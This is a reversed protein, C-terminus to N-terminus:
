RAAALVISLRNALASHGESDTLALAESNRARDQLVCRPQQKILRNGRAVGRAFSQPPLREVTNRVLAGSDHNSRPEGGNLVASWITTMSCPRMTSCTQM